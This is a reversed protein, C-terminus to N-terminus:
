GLPDFKKKDTLLMLSSFTSFIMICTYNTYFSCYGSGNCSLCFGIM